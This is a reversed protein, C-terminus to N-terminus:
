MGGEVDSFSCVESDSLGCSFKEGGRDCPWTREQGRLGVFTMEDTTWLAM